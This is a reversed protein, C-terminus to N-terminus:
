RNVLSLCQKWARQAAAFHQLPVTITKTETIPWTPWFGLTIRLSNGAIFAQTIAAYEKTFMLDSDRVLRDLPFHKDDDVTLGAGSYSLDIDSQTKILWHQTTLVLQLKSMGQGDDFRIPPTSLSCTDATASLVWQDHITIPLADLTVEIDPEVIESGPPPEGGVTADTAPTQKQSSPPPLKTPPDVSKTKQGSAGAFEVKAVAKPETKKVPKPQEPVAPKPTHLVEAKVLPAPPSVDVRADLPRAPAARTQNSKRSPTEAASIAQPFGEPLSETAVPSPEQNKVSPATAVVDASEVETTVPKAVPASSACGQLGTVVMLSATLLFGRFRESM